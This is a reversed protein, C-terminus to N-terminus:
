GNALVRMSKKCPNCPHSSFSEDRQRQAPVGTSKINVERSPVGKQYYNNNPRVHVKEQHYRNNKKHCICNCIIEYGFGKWSGDCENHLSGKCDRSTFDIFCVENM